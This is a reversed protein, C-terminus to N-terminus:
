KHVGVIIIIISFHRCLLINHSINKWVVCFLENILSKNQIKMINTNVENAFLKGDSSVIKFNHFKEYRM